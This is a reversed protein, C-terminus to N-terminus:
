AMDRTAFDAIIARLDPEDVRSAAAQPGFWQRRRQAAEPWTAHEREVKLAFVTVECPLLAGKRTRKEYRYRGIPASIGGEIGAEEFAERRSAEADPLGPMPWGKPIVWRQTERSTILLIELGYAGRRWPLAGIQKAPARVM